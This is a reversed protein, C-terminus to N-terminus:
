PRGYGVIGSRTLGDNRVRVNNGSNPAEVVRGDGIYMAVHSVPSHYFVLDGPRLDSRSIRTTGAYQDRSTRPLDVGAQAWAFSTLGSCDFSNPGNGGWSYPKGVQAMAVEVAKAGPANATAAARRAERDDHEAQRQSLPAVDVRSVLNMTRAFFSAAQDRKLASRPCFEVLECGAGIGAETISAIAPAHVGSVDNFYADGGGPADPVDFATQLLTALQDRTIPDQTCFRDADCGQSIGAEAIAEIAPEHPSDATDVFRGTADSTPLDLARVVMTAVQGRTLERRACFRDETCGQVVGEAALADIAPTHVSGASDPFTAADAPAPALPLTVVVLALLLALVAPLNRARAPIV